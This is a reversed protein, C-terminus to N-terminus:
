KGLFSIIKKLLLETALSLMFRPHKLPEENTLFVITRAYSRLEKEISVNTLEISGKIGARPYGDGKGARQSMAGTHVDGWM